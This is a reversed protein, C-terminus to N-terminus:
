PNVELVHHGAEGKRLRDLHAHAAALVQDRLAPGGLALGGVVSLKREQLGQDPRLFEAVHKAAPHAEEWRSKERKVAAEWLRGLQFDAKGAVSDVLQDLGRGLDALATRARAFGSQQARELDALAARVAPPLAARHAAAIAESPHAVLRELGSGPNDPDVRAALARVAPPALTATLRPVAPPLPVELRAYAPALQAMYAVEAPGLVRAVTPLATDVALPRLAVGAWLRPPGDGNQIAAAAAAFATTDPSANGAQPDSAEPTLRRRHPPEERWLPFAAAHAGLQREFGRAALGEGASDVTRAYGAPDTLYRTFLPAALTRLAPLRADIVVLGLDGWLAYLHSAFGVGWDRGREWTPGALALALDTARGAPL